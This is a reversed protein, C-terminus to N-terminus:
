GDMSKGIQLAQGGLFMVLAIVIAAIILIRLFNPLNLSSDAAPARDKKKEHRKLRSKPPKQGEDQPLKVTAAVKVKPREQKEEDFAFRNDLRNKKEVKFKQRVTQSSGYDGADTSGTYMPAPPKGGRGGRGGKGARGKGWSSSFRGNGRGSGGYGGGYGDYGGSGGGGGVRSGNRAQERSGGGGKGDSGKNEPPTYNPNLPRGEALTFPKFAQNCLGSDGGTGSISPLEGTELLCALYNGFYNNAWTKFATNLQYMGGLIISVVVVLVLVYEVIGQGRQGRLLTLARNDDRISFVM